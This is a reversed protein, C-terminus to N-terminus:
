GMVIEALGMLWWALPVIIITALSTFLVAAATKEPHLNHEAAYAVLNGILPMVSFLLMIQYIRADFLGLIHIDTWVFVSVLLPWLIFKIVFFAGIQKFDFSLKPIKGIGIGIMMMGLFINCGAAYNWYKLLIESMEVDAANLLLGIWMAHLVPFQLVKLLSDRVSFQGRAVLYYALTVNNIQPGLNMFLYTAAGTTGFMAIILPLGFYIANGNVGAAGMLNATGDQWFIKAMHYSGISIMYSIGMLVIPLLIYAPAFDLQTMAGLSVIPLFIYINLRAVSHLNVDLWRGSIYGLLILLYLPILNPILIDFIM